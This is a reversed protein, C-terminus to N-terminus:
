TLQQKHSERKIEIYRELNMVVKRVQVDKSISRDSGEDLEVLEDNLVDFMHMPTDFEKSLMGFAVLIISEGETIDFYIKSAQRSKQQIQDRVIKLVSQLDNKSLEHFVVKQVGCYKQLFNLTCEKREQITDHYEFYVVKDIKYHMCTIVNEVPEKGWFNM